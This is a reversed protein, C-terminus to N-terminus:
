AKPRYDSSNLNLTIGKSLLTNVYALLLLSKDPLSVFYVILKTNFGYNQQERYIM